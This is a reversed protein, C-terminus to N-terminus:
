KTTTWMITVENTSKKVKELKHVKNWIMWRRQFIQINVWKDESKLIELGYRNAYQGDEPLVM